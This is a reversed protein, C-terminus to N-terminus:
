QQSIPVSPLIINFHIKFFYSTYVPKIQSLNPDLPPSKQVRYHVKPDLCDTVGEKEIIFNLIIEM